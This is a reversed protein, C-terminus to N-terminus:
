LASRDFHPGGLGMFAPLARASSVLDTLICGMLGWLPMSLEPLQLGSRDLQTGDLGHLCHSDFHPDILLASRDFYPDILTRGGLEM